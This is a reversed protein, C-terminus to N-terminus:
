PASGAEVIRVRTTHERAIYLLGPRDAREEYRWRNEALPKRVVLVLPRFTVSFVDHGNPEFTQYDIRRSQYVISRIYSDSSVLCDRDTPLYEHLVTMAELIHCLYDFYSDSFWPGSYDIGTANVAMAGSSFRTCASYMSLAFSARAEERMAADHSLAAWRAAVSAYRATHSGMQKMFADQECISRAGYHRIKGFREEVYAILAPVTANFDPTLEPRDLMFRASEMPAQQNSNEHDGRVDEYYGSWRGNRVPYELVWHWCLDRATAFSGYGMRTLDDFLMAPAVMFAGYEDLVEGSELNVRFPLPSHDRDGPRVHNKLTAAIALAADLYRTEGSLKYFRLCGTAAMAMKDPESQPDNYAGDPSDDQTRPVNPWAWNNPTVYLLVRDLLRRVPVFAEADGTFPYYRRLTEVAYYANSGQNNQNAMFQGDDTLKSTVLFWPDEGHRTMVTPCKKIFNLSQCIVLDCTTWPQLKGADDLVVEHDLIRASEEGQASTLAMSCVFISLVITVPISKVRQDERFRVSQRPLSEPMGNVSSFPM